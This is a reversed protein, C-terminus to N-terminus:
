DRLLQTLYAIKVGHSAFMHPLQQFQMSCRTLFGACKGLEGSFAEPTPLLKDLSLTSALPAVVGAAPAAAAAPMAVGAPTVQLPAAPPPSEPLLIRQALAQTLTAVEGSLRILM